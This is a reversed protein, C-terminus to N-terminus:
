STVKAARLAKWVGDVQQELDKLSGENRIVFDCQPVKADDPIMRSLRRKAEDELSERDVGGSRAVFREIKLADPASVLILKDFRDRWGEGFKTEFILASEVIVIAGPWREFM